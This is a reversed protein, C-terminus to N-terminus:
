YSSSVWRLARCHRTEISYASPFSAQQPSTNPSCSEGTHQRPFHLLRSSTHRLFSRQAPTSNLPPASPETEVTELFNRFSTGVLSKANGYMVCNNFILLFPIPNLHGLSRQRRAALVEKVPSIFMVNALVVGLVPAVVTSLLGGGSM